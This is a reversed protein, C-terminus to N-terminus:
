LLGISSPPREYAQSTNARLAEFILRATPVGRIFQQGAAVFTPLGGPGIDRSVTKAHQEPDKFILYPSGSFMVATCFGSAVGIFLKTLASAVLQEALTWGEDEAVHVRALGRISEPVNNGLVVVTLDEVEGGALVTIMEATLISSFDRPDDSVARAHFAVPTGGLNRIRAQVSRVLAEDWSLRREVGRVRDVMRNINVFSYDPVNTEVQNIAEVFEVGLAHAVTRLNEPLSVATQSTLITAVPKKGEASCVLLSEFALTLLGGLTPSDPLRRLEFDTM